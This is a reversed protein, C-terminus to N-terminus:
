RRGRSSGKSIREIEKAQKRNFASELECLADVTWAAYKHPWGDLPSVQKANFLRTVAQWPPSKILRIPCTPWNPYNMIPIPRSKVISKCKLGDCKDFCDHLNYWGVVDKHNAEVESIM